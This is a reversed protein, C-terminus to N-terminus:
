KSIQNFGFSINWKVQCYYKILGRCLEACTFLAILEIRKEMEEQENLSVKRPFPFIWELGRPSFFSFFIHCFSYFQSLFSILTRYLLQSIRAVFKYPVHDEERSPFLSRSELIFIRYLKDYNGLLTKNNCKFSIM